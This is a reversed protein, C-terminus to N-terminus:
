LLALCYSFNNKGPFFWQFYKKFVRSIAIFINHTKFYIDQQHIKGKTIDLWLIQQKSADWVPGEGLECIEDSAIEPTYRFSMTVNLQCIYAPLFYKRASTYRTGSASYQM